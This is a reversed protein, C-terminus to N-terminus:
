DELMRLYKYVMTRSLDCVIELERGNQQRVQYAILIETFKLWRAPSNAAKLIPIREQRGPFLFLRACSVTHNGAGATKRRRNGQAM